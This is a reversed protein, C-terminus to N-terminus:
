KLPVNAMDCATVLTDNSVLDFSHVTFPCATYSKDNNQSVNNKRRKKNKRKGKGISLLTKALMADGCGFDAVVCTEHAKHKESFKNAM